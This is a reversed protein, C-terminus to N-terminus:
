NMSESPENENMFRNMSESPENENMLEMASTTPSPLDLPQQAEISGQHKVVTQGATFCGPGAPFKGSSLRCAGGGGLRLM